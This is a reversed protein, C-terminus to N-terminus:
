HSESYRAISHWEVVENLLAHETESVAKAVSNWSHTLAVQRRCRELVAQMERYRAVRRQLDNISIFSISGAALVPLCIPFLQFVVQEVAAPVNEVHMTHAIAYAATSGIALVTSIWFAARLRRWLPAARLEQRRYYNLQGVIRKELYRAKFQGLDFVPARLARQHLVAISRILPRLEAVGLRELFDLSRPLGWASVASRCVEAVLRQRLWQGHTHKWGLLLAVGTAGLLCLLKLWPLGLWHWDYVLAAVALLTACVHLIVTSGVLRRFQPSGRTAALDAKRMFEILGPPPEGPRTHEPANETGPLGNISDLWPDATLLNSFNEETVEGTKADIIMLPRQVERAYTIIEATGGKGRAAAGDWVAILVDARDVTELGADLYAEARDATGVVTFREAAQSLLHEVTQWGSPTFDRQFEASSFPLIAHWSLKQGLATQVFLMDAGEAISSVAIWEVASIRSTLRALTEAIRQQILDARALHRHGTFGVFKFLPLPEVPTM